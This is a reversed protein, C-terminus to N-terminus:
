KTLLARIGLILLVVTTLLILFIMFATLKVFGIATGIIGRKRMHRTIHVAGTLLTPSLYSAIRPITLTRGSTLHVELDGDDNAVLEEIEGSGKSTQIEVGALERTLQRLQRKLKPMGKSM